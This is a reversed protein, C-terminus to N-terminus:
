DSFHICTMFNFTMFISRQLSTSYIATTLFIVIHVGLIHLTSDSLWKRTYDIIETLVKDILFHTACFVCMWTSWVNSLQNNKNDNDIYLIHVKEDKFGSILIQNNPSCTCNSNYNKKHKRTYKSLWSKEQNHLFYIMHCPKLELIMAVSSYLCLMKKIQESRMLCTTFSYLFM